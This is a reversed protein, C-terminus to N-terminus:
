SFAFFIARYRQARDLRKQCFLKVLITAVKWERILM